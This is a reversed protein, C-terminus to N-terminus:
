ISAFPLFPPPSPSVYSPPQLSSSHIKLAPKTYINTQNDIATILAQFNSLYNSVDYCGNLSTNNSNYVSIYNEPCQCASTDPNFVVNKITSSNNVNNSNLTECNQTSCYIKTGIKTIYLGNPCQCSATTGDYTFIANKCYDSCQPPASSKYNGSADFFTSTFLDFKNCATNLNKSTDSDLLAPNINRLLTYIPLGSTYAEKFTPIDPICIIPTTSNWDKLVNSLKTIMLPISNNNNNNNKNNMKNTDNKNTTATIMGSTGSSSTSKSTFIESSNRHICDNINMFIILVIIAIGICWIICM